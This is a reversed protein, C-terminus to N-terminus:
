CQPPICHQAFKRRRPDVDAEVDMRPKKMQPTNTSDLDHKGATICPDMMSNATVPVSSSNSPPGSGNMTSLLSNNKRSYMDLETIFDFYFRRFLCRTSCEAPQATVFVCTCRGQGEVLGGCV